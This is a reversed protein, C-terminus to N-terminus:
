QCFGSQKTFNVFTQFSVLVLMEILLSFCHYGGALLMWNEEWGVRADMQRKGLAGRSLAALKKCKRKM